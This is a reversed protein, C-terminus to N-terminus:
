DENHYGLVWDLQSESVLSYRANWYNSSTYVASLRSTQSYGEIMKGSYM